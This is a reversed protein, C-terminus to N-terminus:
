NTRLNYIHISRFPFQLNYPYTLTRLTTKYDHQSYQKKDSECCAYAICEFRERERKRRGRRGMSVKIEKDKEWYTIREASADTLVRALTHTYRRETSSHSPKTQSFPSICTCCRSRYLRCYWLKKPPIPLRDTQSDRWREIHKWQTRNKEMAKIPMLDFLVPSALLRSTFSKRNLNCNISKKQQSNPTHTIRRAFSCCYYCCLLLLLSLLLLMHVSKWWCKGFLRKLRKRARFNDAKSTKKILKQSSFCFSGLLVCKHGYIAIHVLMCILHILHAWATCHISLKNQVVFSRVFSGIMAPKASPKQIDCHFIHTLTCHNKRNCVFLLLCWICCGAHLWAFAVTISVSHAASYCYVRIWM